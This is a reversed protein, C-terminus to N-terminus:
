DRSYVQCWLIIQDKLTMLALKEILLLCNLVTLGIFLLWELSLFLM